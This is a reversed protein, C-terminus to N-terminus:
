RVCGYGLRWSRRATGGLWRHRPRCGGREGRCPEEGHAPVEAKTIGADGAAGGGAGGARAGGVASVSVFRHAHVVPGVKMTVAAGFCGAEAFMRWSARRGIM